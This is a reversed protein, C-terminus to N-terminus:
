LRILDSRGEDDEALAGDGGLDLKAEAYETRSVRLLFYLDTQRLQLLEEEKDEFKRQLGATLDHQVVRELFQRLFGAFGAESEVINFVQLPAFNM